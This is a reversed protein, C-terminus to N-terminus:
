PWGGLSCSRSKRPVTSELVKALMRPASTASEGVMALVGSQVCARRVAGHHIATLKVAALLRRSRTNTAERIQAHFCTLTLLQRQHEDDTASPGARWSRRSTPGRHGPPYGPAPSVLVLMVPESVGLRSGRRAFTAICRPISLRALSLIRRPCSRATRSAGRSCPFRCIPPVKRQQPRKLSSQGLSIRAM